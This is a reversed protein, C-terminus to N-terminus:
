WGLMKKADLIVATDAEAKEKLSSILEPLLKLAKIRIDRSASQLRTVSTEGVEIWEDSQKQYDYRVERIVLFWDGGVKAFGLQVELRTDKSPHKLDLPQDHDNAGALWCELGLNMQVLRAEVSDIVTNVGTTESNLKNATVHLDSLLSSLEVDTM